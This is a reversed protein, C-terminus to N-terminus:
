KKILKVVTKKNGAEISLLYVGAPEIELALDLFQRQQYTKSQLLKGYLNTISITASSYNKGLDILFNGDTPNPFVLLQELFDKQLVTTFTSEELIINDIYYYTGTGACTGSFGLVNCNPPATFSITHTKWQTTSISDISVTGLLQVSSTNTPCLTFISDMNAYIHFDDSGNFLGNQCTMLDLSLTYSSGQILPTSLVQYIAENYPPSFIRTHLGAYISGDSGVLGPGPSCASYNAQGCYLDVSAYGHTTDPGTAQWDMVNNNFDGNPVPASCSGIYTEFSGNRILNQGSVSLISGSLLLLLLKIKM